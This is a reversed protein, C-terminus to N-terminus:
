PAAPSLYSGEIVSREQDPIEWAVSINDKQDSQKHLVEIYYRQGVRLRILDSAQEGYKDWDRMSTWQSVGAIQRTNASNADTSLWLQATDDAAIWFRYEGTVPPHLYGRIRAGYDKERTTTTELRSLQESGDPRGPFDPSDTLDAIDGGGIPTWWERLISGTGEGPSRTSTATPTLTADPEASSEATPEIPSEVDPSPEESTGDPEEDSTAEDGTSGVDPSTATSVPKPKGLPVVSGDGVYRIRFLKGLMVSLVYLNGDPGMSIQSPGLVMTAFFNLETGSSGFTLYQIMGANFDGFFYAGRYQSPFARGTYVDGGIVAGRGDEHPYAYIAPVTRTTGDLIPECIPDTAREKSGELCPWGFNAGARGRNVEEYSLDGVDGVFLEGTSPHITFRFPNRMGLAYVKSRNSGADGDYFPNTSYGNGNLPNIRLIKGNLSDLDQARLSGVSYDVGDGAAVYLAGDNGFRITNVTHATGEAALCDRLPKGEEGVCTLPEQNPREPDGIADFTGGAGMLMVLSGEQWRNTDAPNANVRVVRSVRAGNDSFGKAEPPEHVYSLYVYPAYPFRPHVAIGMLGRNYARNVEYGLDIFDAELLEAEDTTANEVVRVTGAKETIFIRGDPSFAFATPTDLGSVVTEQVFGQPLVM